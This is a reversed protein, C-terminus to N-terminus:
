AKRFIIDDLDADDRHLPFSFFGAGDCLLIRIM